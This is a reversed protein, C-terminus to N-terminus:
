IVRLSYRFRRLSLDDIQRALTLLSAGHSYPTSIPRMLLPLLLLLPTLIEDACLNKVQWLLSDVSEVVGGEEVGMFLLMTALKILKLYLTKTMLHNTNLHSDSSADSDGGRGNEMNRPTSIAHRHSLSTFISAFYKFLRPLHPRFTAKLPPSDFATVTTSPPPKVDDREEGVVQIIPSYRPTPSNLTDFQTAHPAPSTTLTSLSNLHRTSTSITTAETAVEVKNGVEVFEMGNEVVEEVVSLMEVKLNVDMSHFAEVFKVWACEWHLLILRLCVARERAVECDLLLSRPTFMVREFLRSINQQIDISHLAKTQTQILFPPPSSFSQIDASLSQRLSLDSNFATSAPNTTPWDNAHPSDASQGQRFSNSYSAAIPHFHNSSPSHLSDLPPSPPRFSELHRRLLDPIAQLIELLTWSPPSKVSRSSSGDNAFTSSLADIIDLIFVLKGCKPAEFVDDNMEATLDDAVTDHSGVVANMAGADTLPPPQPESQIMASDLSSTSIMKQWLPSKLNFNAGKNGYIWKTLEECMGLGIDRRKEDEVHLYADTFKMIWELEKQITGCSRKLEIDLPFQTRLLLVISAVVLHDWTCTPISWILKQHSVFRHWFDCAVDCSSQHCYVAETRASVETNDNSEEINSNSKDYSLSDSWECCDRLCRWIVKLLSANVPGREEASIYTLMLVLKQTCIIELEADGGDVFRWLFQRLVWVREMKSIPRYAHHLHTSQPTPSHHRIHHGAHLHKLVLTARYNSIFIIFQMLFMQKTRSEMAKVITWMRRWTSDHEDRFTNTNVTAKEEQEGTWGLRDIFADLFPALTGLRTLKSLM